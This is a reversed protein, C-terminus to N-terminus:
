TDPAAKVTPHTSRKAYGMVILGSRSQYLTIVSPTKFNEVLLYNKTAKIRGPALNKQFDITIGVEDLRV